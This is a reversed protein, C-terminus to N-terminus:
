KNNNADFLLVNTGHERRRKNVQPDSNHLNRYSLCCHEGKETVQKMTVQLAVSHIKM